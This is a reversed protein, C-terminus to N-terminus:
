RCITSRQAYKPSDRVGNAGLIQCLLSRAPLNKLLASGARSAFTTAVTSCESGNADHADQVPIDDAFYEGSGGRSTTKVKTKKTGCSTRKHLKKHAVATGAACESAKERSTERGYKYKGHGPGRQDAHQQPGASTPSLSIM